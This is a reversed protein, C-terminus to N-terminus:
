EANEGDTKVEETEAADEPEEDTAPEEPAPQAKPKPAPKPKPRTAPVPKNFGAVIGPPEPYIFEGEEGILEEIEVEIAEIQRYAEERKVLLDDIKVRAEYAERITEADAQLIIDISTLKVLKKAM